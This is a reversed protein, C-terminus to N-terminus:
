CSRSFCRADFEGARATTGPLPAPQDRRVSRPVAVALAAPDPAFCSELNTSGFSESVTLPPLVPKLALLLGAYLSEIQVGRLTHYRFTDAYREGAFALM